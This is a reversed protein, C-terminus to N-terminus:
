DPFTECIKNCLESASCLDDVIICAIAAIKFGERHIDDILMGRAGWKLGEM